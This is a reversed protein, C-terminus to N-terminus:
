TEINLFRTVKERMIVNKKFVLRARKFSLSTLFKKANKGLQLFPLWM